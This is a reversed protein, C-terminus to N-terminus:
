PNDGDALAIPLIEVTIYVASESVYVTDAPKVVKVARIVTESLGTIDIPAALDVLSIKELVSSNGAVQVTGPSASITGLRYGAAPQGAVLGTLNVPVSKQPYFTQEILLTDLLVNESTVSILPSKIERGDSNVLSFPVANYQTGILPTLKNLDYAPVVRAIKEVLNRPGSIVVSNPDIGATAAYINDPMAAISSVPQVPIRRRTIYEDVELTVETQSLWSVSGYSVTDTTQIPLTVTGTGTIRGLDLRVNFNGPNVSDYMKQPVNVRMRLPGIKSLDSTVVYGSRQLTDSNLISVPVDSFNKERTLTADQSILAGWIAIAMLFSAVKLGWNSKFSKKLRARFEKLEERWNPENKQHQSM